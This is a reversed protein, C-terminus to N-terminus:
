YSRQDPPPITGGKYQVEVGGLPYDKRHPHGDWEDPMLIRRLDPHGEFEVGFMDYVEREMFLASSYLDTVTAMRPDDDPVSTRVRFVHNHTISRLIYDVDIRGADEVEYRPWGTTETAAEVRPGGPWHVGSLDSLLECRVDADEKCFRLLDHVREPEVIFTLEGRFAETELDGFAALIHDRLAALTEDLADRDAGRLARLAAAEGGAMNPNASGTGGRRHMTREREVPLQPDDTREVDRGDGQSM